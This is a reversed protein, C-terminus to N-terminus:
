NSSPHLLTSSCRSRPSITNSAATLQGPFGGGIAWSQVCSFVTPGNTRAKGDSVSTRLRTHSQPCNLRESSSNGCLGITPKRPFMTHLEVLVSEGTARYWWENSRSRSTLTDRNLLHIIAVVSARAKAHLIARCGRNRAVGFRLNEVHVRSEPPM